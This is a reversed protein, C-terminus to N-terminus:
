QKEKELYGFGIKKYIKEDIDIKHILVAKFFDDHSEIKYYSDNSDYRLGFGDYSDDQNKIGVGYFIINNLYTRGVNKNSIGSKALLQQELKNSDAFLFNLFITLLLFLKNM